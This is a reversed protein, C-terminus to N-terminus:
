GQVERGATSFGHPGELMDTKSNFFSVQLDAIMMHWELRGFEVFCTLAMAIFSCVVLAIAFHLPRGRVADVCATSENVEFFRQHCLSCTLSIRASVYSSCTM